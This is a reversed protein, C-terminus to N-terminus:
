VRNVKIVDEDENPFYAVKGLADMVRVRIRYPTHAAVFDSSSPAYEVVGGTSDTVTVKSTSDHIVRSLCDKLVVSVKLGTLDVPVGDADCRLPLADTWGEVVDTLPGNM